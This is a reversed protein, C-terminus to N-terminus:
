VDDVYNVFVQNMIKLGLLWWDLKHGLCSNKTDYLSKCALLLL